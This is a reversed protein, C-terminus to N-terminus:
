RWLGSDIGLRMDIPLYRSVLNQLTDRRPSLDFLTSGIVLCPAFILAVWTAFRLTSTLLVMASTALLTLIPWVQSSTVRRWKYSFLGSSKSERKWLDGCRRTTQGGRRGLFRFKVKWEPYRISSLGGCKLVPRSFQLYAMCWMYIESDRFISCRAKNTGQSHWSVSLSILSV